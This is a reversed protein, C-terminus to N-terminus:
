FNLFTEISNSLLCRFSCRRLVVFLSLYMWNTYCPTFVNNLFIDTTFCHFIERVQVPFTKMAFTIKLQTERANREVMSRFQHTANVSEQNNVRNVRKVVLAGNAGSEGTEM